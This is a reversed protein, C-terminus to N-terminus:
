PKPKSKYQFVFRPYYDDENDTGFTLWVHGDQVDVLKYGDDVNDYPEDRARDWPRDVDVIRVRALPEKGFLEHSDNRLVVDGISSRYGDNENEMAEWVVEDLMFKEDVVGYFNMERGVLAHFKPMM